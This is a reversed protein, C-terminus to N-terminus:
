TDEEEANGEVERESAPPGDFPLSQQPPPPKIPLDELGIITLGARAGFTRIDKDDTYITTAQAVRAIAVIQRDYKIKAWTAEPSAGGRKEGRDLDNKTMAAVEIAELTDFSWIQFVGFESIAEVLKAADPGARVLVESLAPTPIIIRVNAAEMCEVWYAIRAQYDTIPASARNTPVGADSRLLLMLMTADIVVM